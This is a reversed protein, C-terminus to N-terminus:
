KTQSTVKKKDGQLSLIKKFGDKTKKFKTEILTKAYEKRRELGRPRKWYWEFSLAHHKDVFPGVVTVHKWKRGRTAKAGGKIERNHQRLRRIPDVAYGIYTKRHKDKDISNILYCWHM